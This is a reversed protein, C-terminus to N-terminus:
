GRETSNEEYLLTLDFGQGIPILIEWWKSLNM